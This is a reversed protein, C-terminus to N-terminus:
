GPLMCCVSKTRLQSPCAGGVVMEVCCVHVWWLYEFMLSCVSGDGPVTCLTDGM